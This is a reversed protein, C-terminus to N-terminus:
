VSAIGRKGPVRVRLISRDRVETLNELSYYVGVAPDRIQIALAADAKAFRAFHRQFLGRLM